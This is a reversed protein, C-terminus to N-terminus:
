PRKAQASSGSPLRKSSQCGAGPLYRSAVLLRLPDVEIRSRPGTPRRRRRRARRVPAQHDPARLWWRGPAPRSWRSARGARRAREIFAPAAAGPCRPWPPRPRSGSSSAVPGSRTPWRRRRRRARGGARGRPRAAPDAAAPSGGGPRGPPASAAVVRAARAVLALAQEAARYRPALLEQDLDLFAVVDARDIRQLVAETGVVVRERPCTPPRRRHARRGARRGAGRAGGARPDRRGPRQPLPERRVGRVGTTPHRRVPPVGARRRAPPRRGRVVACRALEGCARCALLKARGTRNLVCLVRGDTASGARGASRLAARPAPGGPAPGGGRRGALGGPRPRPRRRPARGLRAGGAHPVPQHARLAGRSAPGARHRRRPRALHTVAGAPPGRRARRAGRVCALDGVPAWAAARTGVVTAGAAGARGTPPIRRGGRRGRPAAPRHDHGAMPASPCLVLANGLAAAPSPSTCSTPPPRCACCRGRRRSRRGRPARARAAGGRRRPAPAPLHPM